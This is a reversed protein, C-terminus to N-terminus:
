EINTTTPHLIRKCVQRPLCSNGPYLNYATRYGGNHLILCSYCFYHFNGVAVICLTCNAIHLHVIQEFIFDGPEMIFQQDDLKMLIKIKWYSGIVRSIDVRYYLYNRVNNHERLGIDHLVCNASICSVSTCHLSYAAAHLTCGPRRMLNQRYKISWHGYMGHMGYM